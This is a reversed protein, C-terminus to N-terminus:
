MGLDPDDPIKANEIVDVIQQLETGVGLYSAVRGILKEVTNKISQLSKFLTELDKESDELDYQRDDLEMKRLDLAASWAQLSQSAAQAAELVEATARAATKEAHWEARTKRARKPGDRTLGSPAGVETYFEDQWDRMASRYASNAVKTVAKGNISDLKAFFAADAKALKGPHLDDAFVKPDDDPLIYAHIHPYVEDTHEIVTKLKSGHQETLYSVNREVWRDYLRRAEGTEDNNLDAVSVPYSSVVTMLTNRDKRIARHVAKGKRKVSTATNNVMEDHLIKLQAIDVGHVIRPPQPDDIHISFIPDRVAEGLVQEISNGAKNPKVSYTEMHAFQPGM